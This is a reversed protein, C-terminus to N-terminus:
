LSKLHKKPDIKGVMNLDRKIPDLEEEKIMENYKKVLGIMKDISNVNNEKNACEEISLCENWRKKKLNILMRRDMESRTFEIPMNYYSKNLGRFLLQRSPQVLHGQNSTMQRPEKMLNPQITRFADIIIKGKVSQIPDVVVAISKPDVMEFNKQTEIDIGSLWCGFGPHSHYWGVVNEKRGTQKLLQLMNSQYVEDVAEVSIGTGNQPMAFVDVVNVTFEDVFEGLMLGMVEVPVGAKGHKLMKLLALSSIHITESTDPVPADPNQRRQNLMSLM